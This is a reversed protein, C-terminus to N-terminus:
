DNGGLQPFVAADATVGDLRKDQAIWAEAEQESTFGLM